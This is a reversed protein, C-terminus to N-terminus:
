VTCSVKRKNLYINYSFFIKENSQKAKKTRLLKPAFIDTDMEFGM